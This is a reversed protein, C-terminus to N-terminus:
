LYWVDSTWGRKWNEDEHNEAAWPIEPAVIYDTIASAVDGSGAGAVRARLRAPVTGDSGTIRETLDVSPHRDGLSPM